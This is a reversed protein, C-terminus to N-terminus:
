KPPQEFAFRELVAEFKDEVSQTTLGFQNLRFRVRSKHRHAREEEIDLTARYQPTLDFEFVGYLQEIARAPERTLDDFPMFAARDPPLDALCEGAYLYFDRMFDIVFERAMYHGPDSRFFGYLLNWFGLMSPVAVHPTRTICVFRADPFQAALSRIMPTFYPNKSLFTKEAGHFYLHRQVCREYYRLVRARVKPPTERDFRWLHGLIDPYPFMATLIPMAFRYALLVFDEEPEFISVHHLHNFGHFAHKELWALSRQAPAGLARDLSALFTFIHRETISPAFLLEALSFSTFRERDEALVRHLLTTGCRPPGVLFLPARVRVKRYGRFFLDDLFFGVQHAAALFLCFPLLVFTALIRNRSMRVPTGRRAFVSRGLARVFVRLGVQGM